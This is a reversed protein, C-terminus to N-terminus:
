FAIAVEIKDLRALEAGSTADLLVVSVTKETIEELLMVAITNMAIQRPDPEMVTLHVEGTADEFGYSASVPQSICRGRVRMEVRVKPPAFEFLGTGMGDIQVSFFRTTLKPSGPKLTWAINTPPGALAHATPAMVVVPIILEQPSLGGHFYARAGGKAKFCAFTWPTAIDLDSDVGLSTLSTRLYSPESTGGVGIWVRRHLDATEGGPADIKMDESLEEAFLHGHDATLIISTIGMDSLIRVGRRLDNLIGDMQRRAQVINDQECLEDIEQSTVLVLQADQIGDRIKKSPKPLLSDLKTEFVPVGAHTKLYAIRSKRDKIVTGAIDLALKGGGVAVVKASEGARPLLAAMGIETITPITSVAPQITLDCDDKLVDCLERAMEFRLADVWVYAVKGNDLRPKVQTDFVDRQRLVDKVPHKTKHFQTVFHQALATGVETYRQEAKMILQELSSHDTGLEPEFTYWRSEMRRHYTDLLCWPADGEAYARILALLKSPAKKLAQAVRDAELLVEAAAAILAWHAQMSPTVDSWFCSLRSRAQALLTDDASALLRQEVHRILAREIALFTEITLLKEPNFELHSLSFEQEIQKAAAVYSERVDRRLRWTRALSVCAEIASPESAVPLSALSPPVADGLGICLDTLLVHRALQVRTTTLAVTAPLEVDFAHQLLGLLDKRASKQDIEKDYDDSHLFALAVEQPHATSFILSLVGTSIDKGKDALTNLDALSLKGSEVQKEIESATEEGLLPKLANRAILALRTNRNPPQQGPQIVVGAVELEILASYTNGRDEPVYVVLRPPQEDNLLADIDHRLRFFSGDYRVVTTQPLELEGVVSAYAQEPDYWVVLRHDEVQKTICHLLHKTVVGTQM